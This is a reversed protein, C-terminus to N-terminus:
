VVASKLGFNFGQVRFYKVECADPDWQAFLTLDPESCMARRYAAAIDETGLAMGWDGEGLIDYYMGAVRAPFNTRGCRITEHMYTCANHSSARGNDCPRLQGKQRMGFRVM